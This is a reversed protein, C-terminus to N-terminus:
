RSNKQRLKKLFTKMPAEAWQQSGVFLAEIKFDGDIVFTEPFQHSRYLESLTRNSDLILRTETKLVKLNPFQYFFKEIVEWSEDEAITIVEYGNENLFPIIKILEPLEQVCPGCWTGWFHILVPKKLNKSFVYDRGSSTSEGGVMFEVALKPASKNSKDSDVKDLFYSLLYVGLCFVTLVGLIKIKKM